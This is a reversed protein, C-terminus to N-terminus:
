VPWYAYHQMAPDYTVKKKELLLRCVLHDPSQLESTHEESRIIRRVERILAHIVHLENARKAGSDEVHVHFVHPPAMAISGHPDETSVRTEAVRAAAPIEARGSM